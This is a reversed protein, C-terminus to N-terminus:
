GPYSLRMSTYPHPDSDEIDTSGCAPCKLGLLMDLAQGEIPDCLSGLIRHLCDAHETDSLQPHTVHIVRSIDDFDPNDIGMLYAYHRGDVTRILWEGYSFDSFRYSDYFHYCSLCKCRFIGAGTEVLNM